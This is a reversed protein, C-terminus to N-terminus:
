NNEWIIIQHSLSIVVKAVISTILHCAQDKKGKRIIKKGYPGLM